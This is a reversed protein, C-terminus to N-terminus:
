PRYWRDITRECEPSLFGGQSLREECVERGPDIVTESFTDGNEEAIEQWRAAQDPSSTTVVVNFGEQAAFRAAVGRVYRAVILAADDDARIPYRGDPGREYGGIAAWLRTIDLIIEFEGDALLDDAVQSKGSGAPGSLLRLPM